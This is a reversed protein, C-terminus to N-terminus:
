IKMTRYSGIPNLLVELIRTASCALKIKNNQRKGFQSSSFRGNRSLNSPFTKERQAESTGRSVHTLILTTKNYSNKSIIFILIVNAIKDWKVTNLVIELFSLVYWSMEKNLITRCNGM